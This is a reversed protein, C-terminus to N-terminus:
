EIGRLVYFEAAGVDDFTAERWWVASTAGYAAIQRMEIMLRQALIMMVDGEDAVVPAFGFAKGTVLAAVGGLAQRRTLVARALQESKIADEATHEPVGLMQTLTKFISM